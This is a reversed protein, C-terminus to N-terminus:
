ALMTASNYECKKNMGIVKIQVFPLFFNALFTESRKGFQGKVKYNSQQFTRVFSQSVAHRKVSKLNLGVIFRHGILAARKNWYPQEDVPANCM